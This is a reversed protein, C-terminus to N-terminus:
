KRFGGLVNKTMEFVQEISISNMCYHEEQLCKPKDCPVCPAQGIIRIENEYGVDTWAPNNPGFLTIVKRGLAAAIHRPGTDNAIVLDAKEFLAKLPGPKLPRDSLSLFPHKANRLIKEAIKKEQATPAVSIVVTAKYTKFLKDALAAFRQAPWLKSPGFAGGPVLIVLPGQRMQLEPFVTQLKDRNQQQLGVYLKRSQIDAGIFRAINLYYDVTSVPRFRRGEKEPFIKDTLFLNRVDRAYGIRRPIGSLFVTMASGFSNKLLIATDSKERRLQRSLKWFSGKKEMWENCFPCPELFAKVAPNALFIIHADAYHARFASLAPTSLIADGLPSPLWILIKQAPRDTM